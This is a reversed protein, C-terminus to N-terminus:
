QRSDRERHRGHDGEGEEYGQACEHHRQDLLLADGRGLLAGRGECGDEGEGRIRGCQPFGGGSEVRGLVQDDVQGVGLAEAVGLGGHFQEFPGLLSALGDGLLNGASPDAQLRHHEGAVPDGDDLVEDGVLFQGAPDLGGPRDHEQERDAQDTARHQDGVPESGLDDPGGLLEGLGRVGETLAVQVGPHLGGAGLFQAVGADGEVGHGVPHGFQEGDLAFQDGVQGVPQTGRQGGQM